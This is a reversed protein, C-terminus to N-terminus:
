YNIVTIGEILNFHEENRTLIETIGNDLMIGAIMTDATGVFEGRERLKAEIEASRIAAQQNLPLVTLGELLAKRIQLEKKNLKSGFGGVLFEHVNIVTTAQVGEFNSIIVEIGDRGRVVDILFTTDLLM